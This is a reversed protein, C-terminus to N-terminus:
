SFRTQSDVFLKGQRCAQLVHKSSIFAHYNLHIEIIYVREISQKHKQWKGQGKSCTLHTHTRTHINTFLYTSVTQCGGDSGRMETLGCASQTILLLAAFHFILPSSCSSSSLSSTHFLLLFSLPRVPRSFKLLTFLVPM